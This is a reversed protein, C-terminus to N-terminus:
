DAPKTPDVDIASLDVDVDDIKLTPYRTALKAWLVAQIADPRINGDALQDWKDDGVQQQVRVAERLTLSGVDIDVTEEVGDINVTVKM